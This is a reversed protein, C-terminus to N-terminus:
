PSDGSLHRAHEEVLRGMTEESLDPFWGGRRCDHCRTLCAAGLDTNITDVSLGRWIGCRGCRARLCSM